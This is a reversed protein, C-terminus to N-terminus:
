EKIQLKILPYESEGEPYPISEFPLRKNLREVGVFYTTDLCAKRAKKLTDFVGAFEWSNTKHDLLKGVIYLKKM